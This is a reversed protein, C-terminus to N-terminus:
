LKYKFNQRWSKYRKLTSLKPIFIEGKISEQMRRYGLIDDISHHNYTGHRGDVSDPDVSNRDGCLEEHGKMQDLRLGYNDFMAKDLKMLEGTSM